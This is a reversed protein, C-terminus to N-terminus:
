QAGPGSSYKHYRWYIDGNEQVYVPVNNYTDTLYELMLQLGQPGNPMNYPVFQVWFFLV